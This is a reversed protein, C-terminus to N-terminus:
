QGDPATPATTVGPFRSRTPVPQTVIPDPSQTPSPNPDQTPDPNTTPDPSPEQTPDAKQTPAITAPAQNISKGGFAPPPFDEVKKGKMAAEMYKTWIETPYGGGYIGDQHIGFGKMPLNTKQGKKNTGPQYMMVSTSLQPTYGVFWASKSDQSTGTKGAVPFGLRRAYVGTGRNVVQQLAYTLDAVADKKFVRKESTVTAVDKKGVAEKGSGLYTIREITHPERRIGEAAFTAYASAMDIAHPDASGLVNTLNNDIRISKPIGAAYAADRTKSIGVDKNLQAFVTNLSHATADVLDRYGSSEGDSDNHVPQGDIVVPSDSKYQTTRLNAGDELAAILGFGKFTSGAQARDITANSNEPGVYKTGGFVAKVAGTEPDISAMGIRLGKPRDKPKPLMAKVAKAGAKVMSRNFTTTIKYGGTWLDKESLQYKDAAEKVVMDRLYGNQSTSTVSISDSKPAFKPWKQTARTAPDLWKETVMADLVVNWRREARAKKEKGDRPDSLSPANIIGALFASQSVTLDKVDQDPGFYARAAAQVGYAGDGLYITNLYRTLIEDKSLKQNIKIALILEKAKRKATRDKQDYINKVYQQSITSGGQLSNGRLNSWAARIISTPEVGSNTEFTRDEAAYVAERLHQPIQDITVITRNQTALEAIPTEGDSYYIVSTQASVGAAEKSPLSTASYAAFLAAFMALIGAGIFASILKWSPLWRTWGTRGWRPYDILRRPKVPKTPRRERGPEPAYGAPPPAQSPPAVYAAPFVGTGGPGQRTPPGGGLLAGPPV